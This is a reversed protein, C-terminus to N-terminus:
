TRKFDPGPQNSVWGMIRYLNESQIVTATAPDCNGPNDCVMVGEQEPAAPDLSRKEQSLFCAGESLAGPSSVKLILSWLGVGEKEPSAREM